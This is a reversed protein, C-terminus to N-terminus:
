PVTIPIAGCLVVGSFFGEEEITGIRIRVPLRSEALLSATPAEIELTTEQMRESLLVSGEELRASLAATEMRFAHVASLETVLEGNEDLLGVSGDLHSVLLFFGELGPAIMEGFTGLLGVIEGQNYARSVGTRTQGAVLVNPPTVLVLGLCGTGACYLITQHPALLPVVRESVGEGFQELVQHVLEALTEPSPQSRLEELIPTWDIGRQGLLTTGPVVVLTVALSLGIWRRIRRYSSQGEHFM